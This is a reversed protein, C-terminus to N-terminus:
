SIPRVYARCVKSLTRDRLLICGTEGRRRDLRGSEVADFLTISIILASTECIFANLTYGGSHRPVKGLVQVVACGAWEEDASLLKRFAFNM